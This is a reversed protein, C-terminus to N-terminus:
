GAEHGSGEIFEVLGAVSLYIKKQQFIVCAERLLSRLRRLQKRALAV